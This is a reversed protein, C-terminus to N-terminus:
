EGLGQAIGIESAFQQYHAKEFEAMKSFVMKFTKDDSQYALREFHKYIKEKESVIERLADFNDESISGTIGELSDHSLLSDVTDMRSCIHEHTVDHKNKLDMQLYALFLIHEEEEKILKTLLLITYDDQAVDRFNRFKDLNENEMELSAKIHRLLEDKCDLMKNVM